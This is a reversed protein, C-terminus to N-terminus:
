LLKSLRDEPRALFTSDNIEKQAKKLDEQMQQIKKIMQPNIM